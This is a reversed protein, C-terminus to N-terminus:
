SRKSAKSKKLLFNDIDQRKFRRDSRPGIRYTRLIGQNSWRRVTNVHLNLLQAVERTTLMAEPHNSVENIRSSITVKSQRHPKQRNAIQRVRERSIGLRRAIEAYTIRRRGNGGGGMDEVGEKSGVLGQTSQTAVQEDPALYFLDDLKYGPFARMAGTILKQDINRTGERVRYLQAASIGIAQALESLNKYRGNSLEFVRTKLIMQKM